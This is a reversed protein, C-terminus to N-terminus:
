RTTITYVLTVGYDGERYKTQDFLIKYDIEIPHIGPQGQIIIQDHNTLTFYIGNNARLLFNHLPKTFLGDRSTGLDREMARVTVVWPINSRAVLSLAGDIKIFGASLDAATPQPFDIRDIVEEGHSNAM